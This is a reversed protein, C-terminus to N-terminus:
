ARPTRHDLVRRMGQVGLRRLPGGYQPWVEKTMLSSRIAFEFNGSVLNFCSDQANM